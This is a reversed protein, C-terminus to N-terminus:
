HASRCTALLASIADRDKAAISLGQPAYKRAVDAWHQAYSCQYAANNPKWAAIGRSGKAKNAVGSVAILNDPDNAFTELISSKGRNVLDAGGHVYFYHLPIIHDIQVKASTSEGRQFRITTGSYPDHLIGSYVTANPCSSVGQGYGERISQRGPKTSYDTDTLDRRLIDNRTDCGNHDVDAWAEGFLARRYPQDSTAPSQQKGTTPTPHLSSAHGGFSDRGSYHNLGVIVFALVLLALVVLRRPHSKNM